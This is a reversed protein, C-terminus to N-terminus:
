AAGTERAALLQPVAAKEIIGAAALGEIFVDLRPAARLLGPMLETAEALRGYRALLVAQWLIAEYQENGLLGASERLADLAQDVESADTRHTDTFLPGEDFLIGGINHYARRLNVLRRLEALPEPHDDVREDHVVGNWPKGDRVAGVILLNASQMGRADGGAAQAADLAALIREALDGKATQYTKVMADAIHPAALMNGQASVGDGTCHSAHVVCRTGTFAAARGEADVVGVQRLDRNDDLRLLADLVNAAPAGAALMQLGLPGYQRSAFAQTVIAGVGPEAFTAVSGVSFFHSQTGIGLMGTEPDRAVLSYTM